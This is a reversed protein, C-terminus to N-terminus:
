LAAVHVVHHLPPFDDDDILEGTAEHRTAVPAVAQVLRDLRFFPDADLFFRLGQGGDRELVEELEVVFDAAHRAGGHGFGGLEPFDVSEVDDGDRGIAVELPEVAGVHDVAGLPFFEDGDGVLDFRILRQSMKSNSSLVSSSPVIVLSSASATSNWRRSPRCAAFPNGAVFDFPDLAVPPRNQHAGHRDFLALPEPRQQLLAADLMFHEIGLMM